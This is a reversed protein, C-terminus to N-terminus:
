EAMKPRTPLVIGLYEQEIDQRLKRLDRAGLHKEVGEGVVDRLRELYQGKQHPNTIGRRSWALGQSGLVHYPHPGPRSQRDILDELIGTAEDVFKQADAAAPNVIAERFLLYAWENEVFPDNARISRAQNLFQRAPGLNDHKVEVSGRQLWYHFDWELMSELTDYLQRTQELGISRLLYEHNIFHRLMRRPRASRHMGSSSKSAAMFALGSLVTTMRGQEQLKDHLVEAIVRHRAQIYGGRRSAVIHRRLLKKINNLSENSAGRLCLLIEDQQLPFRATHAVAVIGYAMAMEDELEILEEVVKEKFKRGSTAEIMAVLLQRGCKTKLINRRDQDSLGKLAGLRNHKDLVSLLGNIDSDTLPSMPIEQPTIEGLSTPNLVRDIRASRLAVLILLDDRAKLEERLASALSPGYVDADDIALVRPADPSRVFRRMDRISLNSDRDIWGVREGQSSLRLCARMLATSKGSGATGTVAILASSKGLTSTIGSWLTHDGNRGIARGSRLDSWIPEHGLLFNTNDKRDKALDAVDPVDPSSTGSDSRARLYKLGREQADSLQSLVAGSFQEGTMPIWVVNLEALLAQRPRSLSPTVLYSRPRLEGLGRGGRSGRYELHQWLPPEDLRTGIAVVPHSLLEAVFREYWPDLRSARDAYQRASFTVHDPLDELTGNLHIVELCDSTITRSTSSNPDTASVQRVTRPLDFARDAALALNDVNLTYVSSWPLGLIQEYWNPLTDGDVSLLQILLTRLNKRRSALATQFLDPLTSDNEFPAGAFCLNWLHERLEATNPITTGSVNRAQLSFGAGTFLIPQAREFQDRLHPVYTGRLAELFRPEFSAELDVIPKDPQIMNPPTKTFLCNPVISSALRAARWIQRPPPDSNTTTTIV